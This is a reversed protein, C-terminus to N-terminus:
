ENMQDVWNCDIDVKCGHYIARLGAEETRGFWLSARGHPCFEDVLVIRGQSDRFGVLRERLLQVRVPPCDPEPLERALLAPIWYRRLVDGMPTGPGTRTVLENDEPTLM